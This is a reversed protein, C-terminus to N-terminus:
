SCVYAEKNKLFLKFSGGLAETFPRHQLIDKHRRQSAAESEGLYETLWSCVICCTRVSHRRGPTTICISTHGVSAEATPISTLQGRVSILTALQRKFAEPRGIKVGRRTDVVPFALLTCNKKGLCGFSFGLSDCPGM